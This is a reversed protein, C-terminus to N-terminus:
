NAVTTVQTDYPVCNAPYCAPRNARLTVAGELGPCSIGQRSSRAAQPDFVSPVQTARRGSAGQYRIDVGNGLLLTAFTDRLMHPPPGERQHERPCSPSQASM